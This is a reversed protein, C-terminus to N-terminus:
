KIIIIKSASAGSYAEVKAVIKYKGEKPPNWVYGQVVYGKPWICQSCKLSDSYILTENTGNIENIYLHPTGCLVAIGSNKSYITVKESLNYENKDTYVSIAGLGFFLGLFTAIFYLALLILVIISISKKNM